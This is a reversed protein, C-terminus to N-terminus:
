AEESPANDRPLHRYLWAGQVVAFLLPLGISSVFHYKVWITQSFYQAVFFNAVAQFLFFAVWAWMLKDWLAEPLHLEKGMLAKLPPTNFKYRCVLMAIAMVAPLVTPKMRIFIDNHFILTAGGALIILSFSIWQLADIKRRRLLVWAMQLVSVSVALLTAFEIPQNIGYAPLTKGTAYGGFLVIVPLLDFLFKM